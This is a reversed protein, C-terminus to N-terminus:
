PVLFSGALPRTEGFRNRSTVSVMVTAGTPLGPLITMPDNVLGVAIPASDVDLVHRSVRYNEARAAPEWEVIIEGPGSARLTLAEVPAPMQGDIPRVFGFRQWLPDDDELLLSLETRFASVRQKLNKLANTYATSAAAQASRASDVAQRTLVLSEVVAEAAAATVDFQVSGHAPNARLYAALGIIVPLPNKPIALSGGAFGAAQWRSNWRTGLTNKLIGVAKMAFARGAEISGHNADYAAATAAKAMDFRALAGQEAAGPPGTVAYLDAAVADAANHTINFAAGLDVLAAHIRSALNILPGKSRPVINM